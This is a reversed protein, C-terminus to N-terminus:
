GVRSTTPQSWVCVPRGVSGDHRNEFKFLIQTASFRLARVFQVFEVPALDDVVKQESVIQFRGRKKDYWIAIDQTLLETKEHVDEQRRVFGWLRVGALRQKPRKPAPEKQILKIKEDQDAAASPRAPHNESKHKRSTAPSLAAVSSKVM